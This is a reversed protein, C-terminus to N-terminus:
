LKIKCNRCFRMILSHKVQVNKVNYVNVMKQRAAISV